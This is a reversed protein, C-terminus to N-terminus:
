SGPLVMHFSQTQDIEVKGSILELDLVHGGTAKDSTLCHFHFGPFLIGSFFAPSWFGILTADRNNFDFVVQNEIVEQISPYPKEQLSVSRTKLTKFRGTIKIAYLVSKNSIISDLYAKLQDLTMTDTLKYTEDANFYTVTGYPAEWSDQVPIAEGTDTIRFYEGDLAVMEGNLGTFTGIGFDGKEKIDKYSVVGDFVGQQLLALSSIHYATDKDTSHFCGTLGVLCFGIVIFRTIM